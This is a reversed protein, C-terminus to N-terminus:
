SKNETLEELDSKEKLLTLLVALLKRKKFLINTDKPVNLKAELHMKGMDSRITQIEKTLEKISKDKFGRTIKKM